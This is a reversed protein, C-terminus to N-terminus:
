SAAAVSALFAHDQAVFAQLLTALAPYVQSQLPVTQCKAVFAGLWSLLADELFAQQQALQAKDACHAGDQAMHGLVALYIAVHDAPEKFGGDLALGASALFAQMVQATVGYLQGQAEPDYASAYPLASSKEGLLFAHAFDSALVLYADDVPALAAVAAEYAAVEAGLGNEALVALFPRQEGAAFARWQLATLELQFQQSFWQYVQARGQCVEALDTELGRNQETM